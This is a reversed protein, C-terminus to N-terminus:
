LTFSVASMLAGPVRLTEVSRRAYSSTSLILERDRTLDVLHDGLMRYLTDDFRMVNLPAVIRELCEVLLHGVAHDRFDSSVLGLSLKGSAPRGAAESLRKAALNAAIQRALAAASLLAIQPELPMALLPFPIANYQSGPKADTILVRLRAFSEDLGDWVCCQMRSYTLM